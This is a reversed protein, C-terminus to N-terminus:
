NKPDLIYLVSGQGVTLTKGTQVGVVPGVLIGNHSAPLVMDKTITRQNSHIGDISGYVDLMNSNPVRVTGEYLTLSGYIQHNYANNAGLTLGQKIYFTGDITGNGAHTGDWEATVGTLNTGDGYFASASMQMSSSIVTDIVEITSGSYASFRNVKLISGTVSM